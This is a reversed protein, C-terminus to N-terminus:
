DQASQEKKIDKSEEEEVADSSIQEVETTEKAPTEKTKSEKAKEEEEQKKREASKKESEADKKKKLEIKDMEEKSNYINAVILFVKQGFKSNITRIKIADQNASLKESLIKRVEDRSPTAESYIEGEIERRNFLPNETDTIIKLDGLM